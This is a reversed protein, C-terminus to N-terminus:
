LGILFVALVISFTYVSAGFLLGLHRTWIVEAALACFGSLAIAIYIFPDPPIKVPETSFIGGSGKAIFIGGSGKELIWAGSAVILNLGVAVLTAITVDFLRLLVFGALLSGGVAGAINGAYFLGLWSAGSRDSTTWRAVAPLAAGMAFTPPLLCVACVLGRLLVGSFGNGGWTLYLGGVLPMVVLLLLGICGIALELAAYVRLPHHNLGILRPAFLSGLCMGGMFTGLLVGLSITSSGIVLQLLQFWVIEYILAAAGSGVFLLLLGPLYRPSLAPDVSLASGGVAPERHKRVGRRDHRERNTSM